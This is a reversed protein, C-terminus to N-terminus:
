RVRKGLFIKDIIAPSVQARYELRISDRTTLYGKTIDGGSCGGDSATIGRWTLGIDYYPKQCGKPVGVIYNSPEAVPNNPYAVNPGQYIRITFTDSPTDKNAGRFRGYIPARRDRYPVLTLVKTLTDVGDDNKFCATNPPRTAILRVPISGLTKDDFRVSIRRGTRADIQGVLWQYSTYPAAPAEFVMPQNNYATDPTPTGFAEIFGVTLPNAVQGQCPDPAPTKDHCGPLGLSASALVLLTTGLGLAHTFFTSRLM